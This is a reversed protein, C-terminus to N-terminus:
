GRQPPLLGPAAQSWLQAAAAFYPVLLERGDPMSRYKGPFGGLLWEEEVRGRWLADPSRLLRDMPGSERGLFRKRYLPDLYTKETRGVIEDPLRGKLATRLVYKQVPGRELQHPPIALMFNIVRLDRFPDRTELPVQSAFYIESPSIRSLDDFVQSTRREPIGQPLPALGAQGRAVLKWAAGTLWPPKV